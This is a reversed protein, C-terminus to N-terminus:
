QARGDAVWFGRVADRYRDNWTSFPLPFDSTRWGDPGMDWPEAIM